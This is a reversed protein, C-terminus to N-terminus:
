GTGCLSCRCLLATLSTRERERERERERHRKREEEVETYRECVCVREKGEDRGDGVERRILEGHRERRRGRGEEEGEGSPLHLETLKETLQGTESFLEAYSHHESIL